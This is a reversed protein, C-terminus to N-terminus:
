GLWEIWRGHYNCRALRRTSGGPWLTLSLTAHPDGSVLPEMRLWAVPSAATAGAGAAELRQEIEAQSVFPMYQWMISHFLVFVANEPRRALADHLYSAADRCHLDFPTQRAIEIAADLRERRELQDAWIFARLRLRADADSVKVPAIDCGERRAVDIRGDLPPIAGGRLVPALRAASKDDGWERSGYRYHFRDFLLNLGASAGVEHLALPLGTERAITLFGPLLLAARGTENTQPPSDLWNELFADHRSMAGGAAMALAGEAVDHPPYVGTLEADVGSLVLAHLGGCLRLALADARPDGSWDLVKRGTRSSRDLNQSLLRCLRATFPSQLADCAKAQDEFHEAIRM